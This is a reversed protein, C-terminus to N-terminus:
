SFFIRVECNHQFNGEHQLRLWEKRRESSGPPLLLIHVVREEHFHINEYHSSIKSTCKKKCFLCYDDKRYNRAEGKKQYVPVTVPFLFNPM